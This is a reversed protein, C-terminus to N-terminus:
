AEDRVVRAGCAPCYRYEGNIRPFAADCKNCRFMEGQLEQSLEEDLTLSCTPDIFDSLRNFMDSYSNDRIGASELLEWLAICATGTLSIPPEKDLREGVKRWRKAVEQRNTM